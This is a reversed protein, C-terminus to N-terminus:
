QGENTLTEAKDVIQRQASRAEDYKRESSAFADLLDKSIVMYGKVTEAVSSCAKRVRESEDGKPKSVSAEVERCRASISNFAAEIRSTRSAFDDRAKVADDHLIERPGSFDIAANMQFVISSRNFESDARKVTQLMSKLDETTREYRAIVREVRPLDAAAITGAQAMDKKLTDIDNLLEGTLRKKMEAKEIAVREAKKSSSLQQLEEVETQFEAISARELELTAVSGLSTQSHLTLHSGSFTGTLAVSKALIGSSRILVSMQAGDVVGDVQYSM